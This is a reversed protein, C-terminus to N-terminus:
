PQRAVIYETGGTWMRDTPTTRAFIAPMRNKVEELAVARAAESLGRAMLQLHGGQSLFQWAVQWQNFSLSEENYRVREVHLGASECMRQADGMQHGPARLPLGADTLAQRVPTLIELWVSSWSLDVIVNLAVQGGPRTVRALERVAREADCLHLFWAGLVLDAGGSALPLSEAPAQLFRVWDCGMDAARQRAQQLQVPSPETLLVVGEAGVRRAMGGDLALRGTGAGVEVVAIGPELGVFDLFARAEGVTQAYLSRLAQDFETGFQGALHGPQSEEGGPLRVDTRRTRSIILRGGRQSRLLTGKQAYMADDAERLAVALRGPSYPAIGYSVHPVLPLDTALARDHLGANVADVYQRARSLDVGPWWGVFEDGGYRVVRGGALLHDRLASGVAALVRDGQTHGYLDNVTKLDDVDMMVVIGTQQDWLAQQREWFVRNELGTVPDLWAWAPLTEQGDAQRSQVVGVMTYPKGRYAFTTGVLSGIHIRGDRSAIRCPIRDGLELEAHLQDWSDWPVLAQGVIRAMGMVLLVPADLIERPSVGFFKEASPNCEVIHGTESVLVFPLPLASFMQAAIREREAPSPETPVDQEGGPMSPHARTM